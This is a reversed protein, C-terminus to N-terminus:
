AHRSESAVPPPETAPKPEGLGAPHEEGNRKQDAKGRHHDGASLAVPLAACGQDHQCQQQAAHDGQVGEAASDDSKNATEEQVAPEPTVGSCQRLPNRPDAALPGFLM